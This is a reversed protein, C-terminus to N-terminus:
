SPGRAASSAMPSAIAKQSRRPMVSIASCVREAIGAASASSPWVSCASASAPGSASRISALPSMAEDCCARQLYLQECLTAGRFFGGRALEDGRGAVHTEVPEDHEGEGCDRLEVEGLTPARLRARQQLLEVLEGAADVVAVHGNQGGQHADREGEVVAAQEVARTRPGARWGM